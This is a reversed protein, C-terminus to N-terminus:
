CRSCPSLVLSLPPPAGVRTGRRRWALAAASRAQARAARARRTQEAGDRAQWEDFRSRLARIDGELVDKITYFPDALASGGILPTKADM